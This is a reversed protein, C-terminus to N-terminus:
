FREVWPRLDIEHAWASRHQALTDLYVTAIADPDLTSDPADAPDPRKASRVGGDIIFHAVHIGKPGLERAASQALARLAFKGMAFGASGAYAKLSATAGTFFIAGGGQPIMRRAAQQAVLFGGFAGIALATAVAEPELETLPGGARASPNYLVFDPSGFREEVEVFLRAVAGADTADATFAAAGTADALAAVRQGDRACIAVKAGSAALRRALAGSIGPGAGVILAVKCPAQQQRLTM